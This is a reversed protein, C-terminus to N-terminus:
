KTYKEEMKRSAIFSRKGRYSKSLKDDWKKGFHDTYNEISLM